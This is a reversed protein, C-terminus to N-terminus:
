RGRGSDPLGGVLLLAVAIAQDQERRDQQDDDAAAVRAARLGRVSSLAEIEVGIIGALLVGFLPVQRHRAVHATFVAAVVMATVDAWAPLQHLSTPPTTM